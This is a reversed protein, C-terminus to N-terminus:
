REHSRESYGGERDVVEYPEREFPTTLKNRKSQRLIVRDGVEIDSVKAGREREREGERERERERERIQMLWQLEDMPEARMQIKSLNNRLKRGMLMEAPSVGTVTHPTTRYQFNQLEEKWHKQEIKAITIAKMITENFREVEGNSQPWYPVGKTHQIGLYELFGEFEAAVFQPGNHCVHDGPMQHHKSCEHQADM